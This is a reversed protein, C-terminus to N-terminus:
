RFAELPQEGRLIRRDSGTFIEFWPQENEEDVEDRVVSVMFGQDILKPRDEVWWTRPWGAANKKTVHLVIEKAPERVVADMGSPKPEPSGTVIDERDIKGDGGCVGCMGERGDGSKGTGKCTPCTQGPKLQDDDPSPAPQVDDDGGPLVPDAAFTMAVVADAEAQFADDPLGATESGCGACAIAVIAVIVLAAFWAFFGPTIDPDHSHDTGGRPTAEFLHIM